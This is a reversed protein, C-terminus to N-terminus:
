FLISLNRVLHKSEEISKVCIELTFDTNNWSNLSLLHLIEFLLIGSVVVLEPILANM